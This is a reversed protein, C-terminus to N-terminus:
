SLGMVVVLGTCLRHLRHTDVGPGNMAVVLEFRSGLYFDSVEEFPAPVLRKVTPHKRM